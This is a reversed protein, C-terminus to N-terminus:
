FSFALVIAVTFGPVWKIHWAASNDPSATPSESEDPTSASPAPTTPVLLCQAPPNELPTVLVPPNDTVQLSLIPSISCIIRAVSHSGMPPLIDVVPIGTYEVVFPNSFPFEPSNKFTALDDEPSHCYITPFDVLNAIYKPVSILNEVFPNLTLVRLRPFAPSSNPLTNVLTGLENILSAKLIAECLKDTADSVFNTCGDTFGFNRAEEYVASLDPNLMDTVNEPVYRLFGYGIQGPSKFWSLANTTLDGQAWEDALLIQGSGTNALLPNEFSHSYATFPVALKFLLTTEDSLAPAGPAFTAFTFGIQETPQLPAGGPYLGLISVGIQKLALAGPIAAYGGESYGSVTAV